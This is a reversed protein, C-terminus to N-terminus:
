YFSRRRAKLSPDMLWLTIHRSPHLQLARAHLSCEDSTRDAKRSRRSGACGGAFCSRMCWGRKASAALLKACSVGRPHRNSPRERDGLTLPPTCLPASLWVAHTRDITHQNLQVLHLVTNTHVKRKTGHGPATALPWHARYRTHPQALWLAGGDTSRTTCYM